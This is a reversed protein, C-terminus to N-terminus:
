QVVTELGNETFFLAVENLYNDPDILFAMGHGAGKIKVLKKNSSCVSYNKESMYYPVLTDEDGHFFIVPIKCNELAKEPTSEELDFGGYLRAGLKIFPYVLNPPLKLEKVVKKIIEKASNYGCDALIGVVNEPLDKDAVTLVTSAGMSIGCLIIKVDDGFREIIFDIWRLCDKSENIGFTIVNGDSKSAGRQDVLLVNRGLTFCRKVGGCLDREATGRYGHFMLEIPAGKKYEYYKGRLTLGDFSTISVEEYKFTRVEKIWEIMKDHYPVYIKDQPLDYETKPTKNKKPVYFALYFCIFAVLLVLLVVSALSGLIIYLAEM